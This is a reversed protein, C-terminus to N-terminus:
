EFVLTQSFFPLMHERIRQPLQGQHNGEFPVMQHPIGAGTLQADLYECGRVIWQFEDNRGYDIVLGRLRLLNDKYEQVKESLKGLGGEWRAWVQDDRVLEGSAAQQYPYDIYPPAEQPNPAFAAGYALDFGPSRKMSAVAQEVPMEALRRERALFTKIMSQPSFIPADNLGERDFLGPSLSYMAGFVDPHRMAINLAGFGGMSHGAIGRAAAQPISRYNADIYGVVDAVILDEWRGTVPSNVYFSGGLVNRGSIIVIIMEKISEGEILNDIDDALSLGGTGDDNFGPLYYIVPYRKNTTSYSPPVYVYIPRSAAEGLLNDALSPAPIPVRVFQRPM